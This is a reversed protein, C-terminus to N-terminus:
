SIEVIIDEVEECEGGRLFLWGVWLVWSIRIRM